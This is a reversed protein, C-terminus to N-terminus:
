DGRSAQELRYLERTCIGFQDAIDPDDIWETRDFLDVRASDGRRCSTSLKGKGEENGEGSGEGDM